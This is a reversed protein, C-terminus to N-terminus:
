NLGEIYEIVEFYLKKDRISKTKQAKLGFHQVLEILLELRAIQKSTDSIERTYELLEEHILKRSL